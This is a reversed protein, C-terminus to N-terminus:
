ETSSSASSSASNSDALAVGSSASISSAELHVFRHFYNLLIRSVGEHQQQQQHKGAAATATATATAASSLTGRQKSKMELWQVLLQRNGELVSQRSVSAQKQRHLAAAAAAAAPSSSAASSLLSPAPPPQEGEAPTPPLGGEFAGFQLNKLIM